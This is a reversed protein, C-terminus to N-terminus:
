DRFYNNRRAGAKQKNTCGVIAVIAMLWCLKNIKMTQIKILDSIKLSYKTEKKISIMKGLVVLM